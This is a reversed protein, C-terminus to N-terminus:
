SINYKNKLYSYCDAKAEFFDSAGQIYAETIENINIDAYEKVKGICYLIMSLNNPHARAALAELEEVVLQLSVKDSCRLFGPVDGGDMQRLDEETHYFLNTNFPYNPIEKLVVWTNNDYWQGITESVTYLKNLELNKHETCDICMIQQNPRPYIRSM